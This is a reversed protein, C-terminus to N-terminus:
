NEFIADVSAFLQRVVHVPVLSFTIMASSSTSLWYSWSCIWWKTCWTACAPTTHIMNKMMIKNQLTKFIRRTFFQGFCIGFCLQEFWNTISTM